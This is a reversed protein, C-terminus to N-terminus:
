AVRLKHKYTVVTPIVLLDHAVRGGQVHSRRLRSRIRCALDQVVPSTGKSTKYLAVLTFIIQVTEFPYLLQLYMTRILYIACM